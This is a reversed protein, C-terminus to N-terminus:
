IMHCLGFCKIKIICILYVLCLLLPFCCLKVCGPAKFGFQLLITDSYQLVQQQLRGVEDKVALNRQLQAIKAMKGEIASEFEVTKWRFCLLIHTEKTM